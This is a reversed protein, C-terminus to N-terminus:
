GMPTLTVSGTVTLWHKGMAIVRRKPTVTRIVSRLRLGMQKGMPTLIGMAIATPTLRAM